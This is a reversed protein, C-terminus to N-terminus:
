FIYFIPIGDPDFADEEEMDEGAADGDLHVDEGVDVDLVVNREDLAPEAVAIVPAEVEIVQEAIGAVDEIGAVELDQEVIGAVEAIGAVEVIPEAVEIDQEPIGAVQVIPQDVVIPRDAIGVDEVPQM